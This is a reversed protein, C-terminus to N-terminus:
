FVRMPLTALRVSNWLLTWLKQFFHSHDIDFDCFMGAVAEFWADIEPLGLNKFEKYEMNELVKKAKAAAKGKGGKDKGGKEPKANGDLDQTDNKSSFCGM